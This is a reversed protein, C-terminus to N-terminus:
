ISNSNFRYRQARCGALQVRAEIGEIVALALDYEDEFMQGALEDAKLRLWETEIQNMESCYKPLFFIYLGQRQWIEQQAKALQCTHISGQDQVVVTIKGTQFLRQAAKEAEWEMLKLYSHSKVGGLVLGYDFSEGPELLGCISLRKGRRLTQEIRKQQEQKAWTYSVPSWLSFGSEDLYKLHIEGAAHALEM